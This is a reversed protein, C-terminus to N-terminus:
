INYFISFTWNQHRGSLIWCYLVMAIVVFISRERWLLPSWAGTAHWLRFNFYGSWAALSWCKPMKHLLLGLGFGSVLARLVRVISIYLETRLSYFLYAGGLYNILCGQAVACLRGYIVLYLRTMSLVGGFLLIFRAGGVRRRSVLLCYFASLCSFHFPRKFSLMNCIDFRCRVWVFLDLVCRHGIQPLYLEQLHSFFDLRKQLNVLCHLGLFPVIRLSVRWFQLSCWTPSSWYWLFFKSIDSWLITSYWSVWYWLKTHAGSFDVSNFSFYCFYHLFVACWLLWWGGQDLIEGTITVSTM